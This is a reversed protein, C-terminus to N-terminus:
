RPRTREACCITSPTKSSRRSPTSSAPHPPRCTTTARSRRPTTRTSPPAPTGPGPAAQGADCPPHHPDTGPPDEAARGDADVIGHRRVWRAVAVRGVGGVRRALPRAPEVGVVAPQPREPAVLSRLLASHALWQELLRVAPRPLNMSEAATRRKVYSLLITSDGAWDIDGVDLDAIGDPVIGSYIGFLLRYAIVVDLHPFLDQVAEHFVAPRQNRFVNYRCGLDSLSRPRASRASGDGVALLLEAATWAARAASSTGAPRGGARASARCLLRRGAKPLGRDAAAVRGGSLAAAPAPQPQINFHRGAALELVGADLVGGSRAYGEVLAGPAASRLSDPGAM